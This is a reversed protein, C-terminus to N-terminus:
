VYAAVSVGFSDSAVATKVQAQVTRRLWIPVAVGPGINTIQLATAETTPQVFTLGSVVDGTDESDAITVATGGVGNTDVAFAISQEGSYEKGVWLNLLSITESGNGNRIYICRYDMAGAGAKAQTVDPFITELADTLALVDEKYSTTISAITVNVVLYGRSPDGASSYIIYEGDANVEIYGQVTTPDFWGIRRYGTTSGNTTFLTIDGSVGVVQSVSVGLVNVPSAISQLPVSASSMVGGLSLLPDSNSAGGSYRFQIDTPNM